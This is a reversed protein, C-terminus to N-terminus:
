GQGDKLAHRVLTDLKGEIRAFGERVDDRRAYTEAHDRQMNTIREHLAKEANDQDDQMKSLRNHLANIWFALFGSVGGLFPIAVHEILWKWVGLEVMEQM